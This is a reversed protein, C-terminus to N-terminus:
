PTMAAHSVVRDRGTAKASYLAEDARRLLLDGSEGPRRVAFGISATQGRPVLARVRDLVVHAASEGCGRLAIVFEEGGWRAIIDSPRVGTPIAEALERLLLDGELHGRSDNFAKFHDLDLIAVTVLAAPDAVLDALVADWARRNLLGTLSDRHARLELEARRHEEALAAGAEFAVLAAASVV